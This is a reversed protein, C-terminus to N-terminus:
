KVPSANSVERGLLKNFQDLLVFASKNNIKEKELEVTTQGQNLILNRETASLSQIVHVKIEPSDDQLAAELAIQKAEVNTLENQFYKIGNLSEKYLQLFFYAFVEILIVLTVRPIFYALLVTSEAAVPTQFVAVSLVILGALTTVIGLTLNVNGRRALDVTELHLRSAMQDFRREIGHRRYKQEIGDSTLSILSAVSELKIQEVLSAILESKVKVDLGSSSLSLANIKVTLEAVRVRLAEDQLVRINSKSKSAPELYKFTFVIIAVTIVALSLVVALKTYDLSSIAFVPQTFLHPFSFITISFIGLSGMMLNLFRAKRKSDLSAADLKQLKEYISDSRRTDPFGAQKIM